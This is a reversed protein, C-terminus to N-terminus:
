QRLDASAVTLGAKFVRDDAPPDIPVKLVTAVRAILFYYGAQIVLEVVQRDTYHTRVAEFVDDPVTPSSAVSASFSILSQQAPDFCASGWEMAALAARQEDTVGVARSIPDHQASEYEADYCTSVTLIAIERDVPTLTSEAFQVAGLGVVESAIAPSRLMMRFVNILGGAEALHQLRIPLDGQPTTPPMEMRTM